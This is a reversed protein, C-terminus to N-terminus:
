PGGNGQAAWVPYSVVWGEGVAKAVDWRVVSKATVVAAHYGGNDPGARTSATNTRSDSVCLAAVCAAPIAIGRGLARRGVGLVIVNDVKRDRIGKINLAIYRTTWGMSAADSCDSEGYWIDDGVKRGTYM